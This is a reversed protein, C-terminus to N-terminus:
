GPHAPLAQLPCRYLRLAHSLPGSERPITGVPAVGLDASTVLFEFAALECVDHAQQASLDLTFGAGGWGLFSQLPVVSSLAAARRQLEAATNRSFVMGSTQLVSLYSPRELLLWTSLPAEPWFVDAGSPIRDRLAAFQAVRQDPFRRDTWTRLTQPLLAGGAAIALATALMLGPRGYRVRCLWALLAAGALPAAGDHVFSMARRMWLPISPDLYHADTFQLNSALRWVVALALLGCTGWWVLRAEGPTLRRSWAISAGAALAPILAFGNAGFIWAGALLLVGARGSVGRMWLTHVILPLMLAATATGLWEWRWPQLQTFLVLHLEDCAIFTLCLGAAMTVLVALCLTRARGLSPVAVGIALTTATVAVRVWDELRWNSLFLYPSRGRVQQLWGADFRGWIGDPMVLVATLWAAAAVFFLRISLRPKPIVVYVCLVAAVGAAAMLPHLLTALALLTMALLKRSTLAAALAGLALAEAGMRPTLFQEVCTFIRDTGYDGPIAVLVALGYLALRAPMVARALLWAGAFFGAQFLLTLTAAAPEVGLFRIAAAYFPSFVTLRDQSGLRLFVDQGLSAPALHALAQLTYLGADHFLGLYSHSLMWTIVCLLMVAAM